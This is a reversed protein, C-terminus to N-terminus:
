SRKDSCFRASRHVVTLDARTHAEFHPFRLLPLSYLATAFADIATAHNSPLSMEGLRHFGSRCISCGPLIFIPPISSGSSIFGDRWTSAFRSTAPCSITDRVDCSSLDVGESNGLARICHWPLRFSLWNPQRLSEQFVIRPPLKLAAASCPHFCDSIATICCRTIRSVRGLLHERSGAFALRSTSLCLDV